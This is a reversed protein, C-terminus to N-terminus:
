PAVRESIIDIARRLTEADFLGFHCDAVPVGLERALWAYARQRFKQSARYDRGPEGKWLLDFQNHAVFRLHRTATGAPHGLPVGTGPHCGVWAGCDCVFFIRSHLDPKSPHLAKGSTMRGKGGCEVCIPTLGQSFHRARSIANAVASSQSRRLKKM